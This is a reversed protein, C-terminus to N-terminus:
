RDRIASGAPLVPRSHIEQSSDQMRRLAGLVERSRLERGSLYQDLAARLLRRADSKVGGDTLSESNLALLSAGNFVLPGEAVGEVRTVGREPIYRYTCDTRVEVGSTERDLQLGYGIMELLRKEFVRLVASEDFAVDKLRVVTMDYLEFVDAHADHREFLRLLLENVYFGSLSRMAPLERFEGDFEAGNLQGADGRSSFSVLMRHFPQLVAALSNASSKKSRQGRAGRAFVTLRGFDRTFLELIRSTDRYPRHHLVYAPQLQIRQTVGAM